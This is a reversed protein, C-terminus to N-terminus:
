PGRELSAEVMSFLGPITEGLSELSVEEAGVGIARVGGADGVVLAFPEMVATFWAASGAAGARVVVREIPILTVSGVRLRTGARLEEVHRAPEPM